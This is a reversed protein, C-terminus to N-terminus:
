TEQMSPQKGQKGLPIQGSPDAKEDVLEEDPYCSVGNFEEDHREDQQIGGEWHSM